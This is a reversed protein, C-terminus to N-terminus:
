VESLRQGRSNFHEERYARGEDDLESRFAAEEAEDELEWARFQEASPPPNPNYWTPEHEEIVTNEFASDLMAEEIIPFDGEDHWSGAGPGAEELEADFGDPDLEPLADAQDLVVQRIYKFGIIAVMVGLAAGGIQAVAGAMNMLPGVVAAAIDITVTM